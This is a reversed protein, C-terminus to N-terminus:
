TIKIALSLTAHDTQTDTHRDTPWTWSCHLFPQVSQSATQPSNEHPGMYSNNSPILIVGVPNAIKSPKQDM